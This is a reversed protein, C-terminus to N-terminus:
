TTFNELNGFMIQVGIRKADINGLVLEKQM